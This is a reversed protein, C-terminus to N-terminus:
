SAIKGALGRKMREVLGVLGVTLRTREIRNAGLPRSALGALVLQDLRALAVLRPTGSAVVLEDVTLSEAAALSRLMRYNTKESVVQLTGLVMETAVEDADTM